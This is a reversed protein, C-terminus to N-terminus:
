MSVLLCMSMAMGKETLLIVQKYYPSFWIWAKGGHFVLDTQLLTILFLTRM